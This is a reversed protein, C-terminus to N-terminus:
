AAEGSAQQRRDRRRSASQSRPAKLAYFMAMAFIVVGATATIGMALGWSYATDASVKQQNGKFLVWHHAMVAFLVAFVALCVILFTLVLRRWRDYSIQEYSRPHHDALQTTISQM